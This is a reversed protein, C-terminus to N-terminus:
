RSCTASSIDIWMESDGEPWRVRLDQPLNDLNVLRFTGAFPQGYETYTFDINVRADRCDLAKLQSLAMVICDGDACVGDMEDARLDRWQISLSTRIEEGVLSSLEIADDPFESVSVTAAEWNRVLGVLVVV